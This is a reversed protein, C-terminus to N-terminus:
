KAKGQNKNKNVSKDYDEDSGLHKWSIFKLSGEDLEYVLPIGTPIETGAIKEDSCDTIIKILARISNGHAAILVNGEKLAPM